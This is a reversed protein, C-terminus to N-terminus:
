RILIMKKMQVFKGAMMRYYYVGSPLSSGDFSATKYGASEFGDILTAVERGLIDYVKLTVNVDEPLTYDIQTLPNFPNPRNGILDLFRPRDHSNQEEIGGVRVSKGEEDGQSVFFEVPGAV